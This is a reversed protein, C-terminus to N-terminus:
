KKISNLELVVSEVIEEFILDALEMSVEAKEDEYLNWKFENEFIENLLM